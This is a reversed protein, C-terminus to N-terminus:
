KVDSCAFHQNFYTNISGLETIRRFVSVKILPSLILASGENNSFKKFTKRLAFCRFTLINETVIQRGGM